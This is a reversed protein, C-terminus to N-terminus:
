HYPVSAKKAKKLYKKYEPNNYIKKIFRVYADKDKRRIGRDLMKKVIDDHKLLEKVRRYEREYSDLNSHYSLNEDLDNIEMVIEKESVIESMESTYELEAESLEEDIEDKFRGILANIDEPRCQPCKEQLTKGMKESLENLFDKEKNVAENLGNFNVKTKKRRAM